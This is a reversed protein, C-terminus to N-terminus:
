CLPLCICIYYRYIYVYNNNYILIANERIKNVYNCQLVICLTINYFCNYYLFLLLFM